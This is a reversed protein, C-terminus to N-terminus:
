LVTLFVNLMEHVGKKRELIFILMATKGRVKSIGNVFVSILAKERCTKFPVFTTICAWNRKPRRVNIMFTNESM